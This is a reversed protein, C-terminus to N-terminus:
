GPLWRRKQEDYGWRIIMPGIQWIGNPNFLGPTRAQAMEECYIVNQMITADRGGWESPWNIAAWRAENLKHQWARAREHRGVIGPSQPHESGTEELFPPLHEALWSRLEDRFAEDAPTLAFDMPPLM